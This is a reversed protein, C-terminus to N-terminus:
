RPKQSGNINNVVFFEPWMSFWKGILSMAYKDDENFLMRCVQVSYFDNAVTLTSIKKKKNLYLNLNAVYYSLGLILMGIFKSAKRYKSAKYFQLYKSLLFSNQRWM